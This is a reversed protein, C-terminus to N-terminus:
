ASLRLLLLFALCVTVVNESPEASAAGGSGSQVGSMSLPKAASLSKMGRPPRPVSLHLGTRFRQAVVGPVTHAEAQVAAALDEGAVTVSKCSASRGKPDRSM